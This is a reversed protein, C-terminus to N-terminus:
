EKNISISISFFKNLNNVEKFYYEVPQSTLISIQIIGIHAGVDKIDHFKRRAGKLERLENINLKNIEKCYNELVPEDKSNILNITNIKYYNPYEKVLLSGIGAPLNDGFKQKEASYYAVNQTLEFFVKYFRNQLKYDDAFLEKIYSGFSSLINISFPGKYALVIDKEPAQIM